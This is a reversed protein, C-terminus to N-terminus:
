PPATVNGIPSCYTKGDTGNMVAVVSYTGSVTVTVDAAAWNLGVLTINGSPSIAGGGSMTGYVFMPATGDVNLSCSGKSSFKLSGNPKPYGSDWSISVLNNPANGDPTANFYPSAVRDKDSFTGEVRFSYSQKTLAPSTM